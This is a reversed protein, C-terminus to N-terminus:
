RASDAPTGSGGLSQCIAVVAAVVVARRAAQREVPDEGGVARLGQPVGTWATSIAVVIELVDIATRDDPLGLAKRM